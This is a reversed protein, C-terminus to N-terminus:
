EEELAMLRKELNDIRKQQEQILALMGPIIRREDWSEVNGDGDHIVASPYVEEVDEAIFGPLLQGDMDQYQTKHGENYIFQKPKLELLKHPDLEEGLEDIDHKYRKSSSSSYAVWHGNVQLGSSSFEMRNNRYNVEVFFVNNSLSIEGCYSNGSWTYGCHLRAGGESISMFPYADRLNPSVNPTTNWFFNKAGWGFVSNGMWDGSGSRIYREFMHFNKNVYEGFFYDTSPGFVEMARLPRSGLTPMAPATGDSGIFTDNETAATYMIYESTANLTRGSKANNEDTTSGIRLGNTYATKNYRPDWYPFHGVKVLLDYDNSRMSIDGSVSMRGTLLNWTNLGSADSLIGARIRDASLTGTTIYDAVIQGDMTMALGYPGNIGNSSYGLGNLNWRWVKTATDPSTTDMVYIEDPRVVVHSGLAGSTILQTASEKAEELISQKTPLEEFATRIDTSMARTTQTLTMRTTVGLTFVTNAPHKLDMEMKTIPFYQDLGHPESICRVRDLLRLGEVDGGMNALDVATVTLVIDDYVENNLYAQAKTKLNSAVEVDDWHVVKTIVGYKAVASDNQLYNKGGNVSEITLYADLAEIPSEDLRTGLPIIRTVIDEMANDQTYDLLNQGFRIVQDSTRAWTDLYDLYNTETNGNKVHRIRLHGGLRDVLKDLIAELTNEWNTYRYLIQDPNEVTVSGVTFLRHKDAARTANNHITLFSSLLSRVSGVGTGSIHYEKPAQISDMLYSLEGTCSVTKVGFFNTSIDTPTGRWIEEGDQYVYIVSVRNEIQDVYPHTPSIQFVLEGAENDALTLSASILTVDDTNLELPATGVYIQYM